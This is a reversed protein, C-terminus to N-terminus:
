LVSLVEDMHGNVKVKPFIHQITGTEDIVFTTREIGFYKRGYM